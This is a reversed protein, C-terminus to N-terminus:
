AAKLELAQSLRDLVVQQKADIVGDGIAIAKALNWAERREELTPLLSALSEIARDPDLQVMYSQEKLLRKREGISLHALKPHQERAKRGAELERENIGGAGLMLTAVIRAWGEAFGGAGMRGKVREIAADLEAQERKSRVIPAFKAIELDEETYLFAGLAKPGYIAKFLM